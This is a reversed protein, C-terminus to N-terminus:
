DFNGYFAKLIHPRLVFGVDKGSERAVKESVDYSVRDAYETYVLFTDENDLARKVFVKIVGKKGKEETVYDSLLRSVEQASEKRITLVALSIIM